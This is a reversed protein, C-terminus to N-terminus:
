HRAVDPYSRRLSELETRISRGQALATDRSENAQERRMESTLPSAIEKTLAAAEIERLALRAELKSVHMRIRLEDMDDMQLNIITSGHRHILLAGSSHTPPCDRPSTSAAGAPKTRAEPRAPRIVRPVPQRARTQRATM